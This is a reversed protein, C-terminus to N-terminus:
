GLSIVRPYAESSREHYIDDLYLALESECLEPPIVVDYVRARMGADSDNFLQWQAGVRSVSMRKGFVNFRITM